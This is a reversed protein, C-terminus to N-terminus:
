ASFLLFYSYRSGHLCIREGPAVDVTEGCEILEGNRLAGNRNSVELQWAAREPDWCLSGAARSIAPDDLVTVSTADEALRPSRGFAWASDSSVRLMDLSACTAADYRGDVSADGRAVIVGISPKTGNEAIGDGAAAPADNVSLTGVDAQLSSAGLGAKELQPGYVLSYLVGAMFNGLAEPETLAPELARYLGDLEGTPTDARAEDDLLEVVSEAMHRIATARGGTETERACALLWDALLQGAARWKDRADPAILTRRDSDAANGQTFGWLWAGSLTTTSSTKYPGAGSRERKDMLLRASDQLGEMVLRKARYKTAEGSPDQSRTSLNNAKKPLTPVPPIRMGPETPRPKVLPLESAAEHYEACGVMQAIKNCTRNFSRSKELPYFQVWYKKNSFLLAQPHDFVAAGVQEVLRDHIDGCIGIVLDREAELASYQLYLQQLEHKVHAYLSDANQPSNAADPADGHDLLLLSVGRPNALARNAMAASSLASNPLITRTLERHRDKEYWTGTFMRYFFRYQESAAKSVPVGHPSIEEDAEEGTLWSPGVSLRIRDFDQLAVWSAFPTDCTDGLIRFVADFRNEAPSNVQAM